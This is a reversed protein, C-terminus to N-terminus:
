EGIADITLVYSTKRNIYITGLAAKVALHDSEVSVLTGEVTFTENDSCCYIAVKKNVLKALVEELNKM